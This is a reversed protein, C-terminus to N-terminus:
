ARARALSRDARLLFWPITLHHLPAAATWVPRAARRNFHVRTVWVVEDARVLVINRATILRSRAALTISEPDSEAITWGLIHDPSLKPGLRLGLVRTWGWM